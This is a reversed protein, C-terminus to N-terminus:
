NSTKKFRAEDTSTLPYVFGDETKYWTNGAQNKGSAYVYITEGKSINRVVSSASSPKSRIATSDTTIKVYYGAVSTDISNNFAWVDDSQEPNVPDSASLIYFSYFSSSEKYNYSFSTGLESVTFFRYFYYMNPKFTYKTNTGVSYFSTSTSTINYYAYGSSFSGTSRAEAVKIFKGSQGPIYNANPIWIEVGYASINQSVVDTNKVASFCLYDSVKLSPQFDTVKRQTFVYTSTIKSFRSEGSGTSSLPYVYGDTTKYWTNGASNKGSATVLIIDGKDINRVVNSSSSPKSRIATSDSTIKAYYGKVSTSMTDNFSKVDKDEEIIVGSNYMLYSDLSQNTEQGNRVIILNFFATTINNDRNKKISVITSGNNEIYLYSSDTSFTIVDSDSFGHLRLVDSGDPDDIIDNGDGKFYYYTDNHSKGKLTDNGKGGIFVCNATSGNLTDNGLGGYLVCSNLTSASLTDGGSTGLMLDNALLILDVNRNTATTRVTSLIPTIGTGSPSLFSKLYHPSIPDTSEYGGNLDAISGEHLYYNKATRGWMGVFTDKNNVNDYFNLKDIGEFHAGMLEPINYYATDLFPAPGNFTQAYSGSYASVVFALAGGLSHGTLHIKDKTLNYNTCIANYYYIAERIQPGAGGAYAPLDNICWDYFADSNQGTFGGLVDGNSGRYAIVYENSNNVFTLAAFGTSTDNFVNVITWGDINKYIDGYTYVTEEYINNWKSALYEAISKGATANKYAMDSFAFYDISSLDSLRTSILKPIITQAVLVKGCVSCHSGETKGTQTYTPAVAPDIVAKHGLANTFSDVYTDGCRSCVHTTYGNATCTPATVTVNYNHGRKPVVTQAVFVKGCVSCHSGETLGTNVCTAPVAPDTVATHGLAPIVYQPKLTKGCANCYIGETFGSKECTAAVAAEIILSEKPHACVIEAILPYDKPFLVHRLLYIADDSTVMKDGTFDGTAGNLSYDESFLVHRLLFIADDSTVLKDGTFDGLVSSAASGSFTFVLSMAIALIMASIVIRKM